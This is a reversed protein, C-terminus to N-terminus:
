FLPLTNLSFTDTSALITKKGDKVGNEQDAEM